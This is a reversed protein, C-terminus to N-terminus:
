GELLTLTTDPPLYLTVGTDLAFYQFGSVDQGGAISEVPATGRAVIGAADTLTVQLDTEFIVSGDDAPLLDQVSLTIDPSDASELDGAVDSAALTIDGDDPVLPSALLSTNSKGEPM